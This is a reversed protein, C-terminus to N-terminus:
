LETNSILGSKAVRFGSSLVRFKFDAQKAARKIRNVEAVQQDRLRRNLFESEVPQKEDRRRLRRELRVAFGRGGGDAQLQEPQRERAPRIIFNVFLFDPAAANGVGNVCQAIVRFSKRRRFQKVEDAGVMQLVQRLPALRRFQRPQGLKNLNRPRAFRRRIERRGKAAAPQLTKGQRNRRQFDARPHPRTQGDFQQRRRGHGPGDAIIPKIKSRPRRM